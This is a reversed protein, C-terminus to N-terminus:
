VEFLHNLWSSVFIYEPNECQDAHYNKDNSYPRMGKRRLLRNDCFISRMFFIKSDNRMESDLGFRNFCKVLKELCSILEFFVFVYVNDEDTWIMEIDHCAIDCLETSCFDTVLSCAYCALLLGERSEGTDVLLVSGLM